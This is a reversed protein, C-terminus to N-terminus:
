GILPALGLGGDAAVVQGTTAGSRPSCLMAVVTAVEDPSTM